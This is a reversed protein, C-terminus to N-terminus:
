YRAEDPDVPKIWITVIKGKHSTERALSMDTMQLLKLRKWTSMCM